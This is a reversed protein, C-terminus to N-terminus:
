CTIGPGYLVDMIAILIDFIRQTLSEHWIQGHHHEYSAPNSLGCAQM